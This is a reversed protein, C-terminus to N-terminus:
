EVKNYMLIVRNELIDKAEIWGKNNIYIRHSKTCIIHKKKISKKFKLIIQM